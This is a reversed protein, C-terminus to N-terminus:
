YLKKNQSFYYFFRHELATACYGKSFCICAFSPCSFKGEQKQTPPALEKKHEAWDPEM